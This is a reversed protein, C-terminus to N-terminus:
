RRLNELFYVLVNGMTLLRNLINFRKGLFSKHFIEHSFVRFRSVLTKLQGNPLKRLKSIFDTFFVFFISIIPTLIINLVMILPKLFVRDWSNSDINQLRTLWFLLFFGPRLWVEVYDCTIVIIFFVIIWIYTEIRWFVVKLKLLGWTM